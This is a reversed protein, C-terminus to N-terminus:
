PVRARPGVVDGARPGQLLELREAERHGIGPPGPAERGRDPIRKIAEEDCLRQPAVEVEDAVLPHEIVVADAAQPLDPRPAPWRASPTRSSRGRERGRWSCSSGT